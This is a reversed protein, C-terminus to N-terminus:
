VIDFTVILVIGKINLIYLWCFKMNSIWKAAHRIYLYEHIYATNKLHRLKM